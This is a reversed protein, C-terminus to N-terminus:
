CHVSCKTVTSSIQERIVLKRYLLRVSELTRSIIGMITININVVKLYKAKRCKTIVLVYKVIMEFHTVFKQCANIIHTSNNGITLMSWLLDVCKSKGHKFDFMHQLRWEWIWRKLWNQFFHFNNEKQFVHIM